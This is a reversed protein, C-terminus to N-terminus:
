IVEAEKMLSEYDEVKVSTLKDAGYKNLLAKVQKTKGDQSKKALVSRVADISIEAKPEVSKGKVEEIKEEISVEKIIEEKLKSIVESRPNLSMENIGESIMALGTAIKALGKIM